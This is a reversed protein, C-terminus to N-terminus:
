SLTVTFYLTMTSVSEGSIMGGYAYSIDFFYYSTSATLTGTTKVTLDTASGFFTGSAASVVGSGETTTTGITSAWVLTNTASPTFTPTGSHAPDCLAPSYLTTATCSGGSPNVWNTQLQSYSSSLITGSDTTVEYAAWQTIPAASPCTTGSSCTVAGGTWSALATSVSIATPVTTGTTCIMAVEGEFYAYGSSGVEPTSITLSAVSTGSSSVGTYAADQSGATVFGCTTEAVPTTSSALTPSIGSLFVTGAVLGPLVMLIAILIGLKAGRRAKRNQGLSGLSENIRKRFM